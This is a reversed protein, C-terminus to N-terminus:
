ADAAGGLAQGSPTRTTTPTDAARHQRLVAQAAADWAHQYGAPLRAWPRPFTPGLRAVYAAYAVQGPTLVGGDVNTPTDSM